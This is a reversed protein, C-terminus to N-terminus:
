MCTTCTSCSLGKFNTLFRRIRSLRSYELHTKRTLIVTTAHFVIFIFTQSINFVSLITHLVNFSIEFSMLLAARTSNPRMKSYCCRLDSNRPKVKETKIFKEVIEHMELQHDGQYRLFCNRAAESGMPLVAGYVVPESLVTAIYLSYKDYYKSHQTTSYLDM